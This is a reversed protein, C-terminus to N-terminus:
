LKEISILKYGGDEEIFNFKYASLSEKIDDIVEGPISLAYKQSYDQYRVIPEEETEVGYSAGVSVITASFGETNKYVDVVKSFIRAPSTGGLGDAFQIDFSNDEPLYKMGLLFGTFSYDKKEINQDNGFYSKYLNNLDDYKINRLIFPQDDPNRENSFLDDSAQYIAIQIKSSDDLNEMFCAIRDNYCLTSEENKYNFKEELFKAVEATTPSSSIEETTSETTSETTTTEASVPTPTTPSTFYLIAFTIAAAISLVVLIGLCWLLAKNNKPKTPQPPTPAATSELAVEDTTKQLTNPEM